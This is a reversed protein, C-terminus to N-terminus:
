DAARSRRTPSAANATFTERLFFSAFSILGAEFAFVVHAVPVKLIAIELRDAGLSRFDSYGALSQKGFEVVRVRPM